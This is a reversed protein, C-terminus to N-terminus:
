YPYKKKSSNPAYTIIKNIQELHASRFMRELCKTADKANNFKEVFVYKKKKKTKKNNVVEDQSEEEDNPSMYDELEEFEDFDYNNNM